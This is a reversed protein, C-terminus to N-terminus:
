HSHNCSPCARRPRSLFVVVGILVVVLAWVSHKRFDGGEVSNLKCPGSYNIVKTGDRYFGGHPLSHSNDGVHPLTTRTYLGTLVALSGGIALALVANTYNPPPSLPM